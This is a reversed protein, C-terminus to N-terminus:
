QSLTVMNAVIIVGSIANTVAMLPTHLAASVNWIVMYGAYISLIFLGFRFIFILDTYEGVAYMILVAM